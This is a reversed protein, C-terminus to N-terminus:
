NTKIKCTMKTPLRPRGEDEDTRTSNTSVRKAFAVKLLGEVFSLAFPFFFPLFLLSMPAFLAEKRTKGNANLRDSREQRPAAEFSGEDHSAPRREGVGAEGVYKMGRLRIALATKGRGLRGGCQSPPFRFVHSLGRPFEGAFKRERSSSSETRRSLTNRSRSM